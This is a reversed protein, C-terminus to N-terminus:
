VPRDFPATDRYCQAFVTDVAKSPVDGQCNSNSSLSKKARRKVCTQHGGRLGSHGRLLEQLYACEGSLASARVETCAHHLCNSFDLKARCKDYAHILEHVVTNEFTKRGLNKNECLVIMPRYQTSSQQTQVAFGGSIQEDPCPRCVMFSDPLVCGKEEIANVLFQVTKNTTVADYLM